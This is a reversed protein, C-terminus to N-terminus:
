ERERERVRERERERESKSEAWTWLGQQHGVQEGSEPVRGGVHTTEDEVCQIADAGFVLRIVRRPQAFLQQVCRAGLRFQRLKRARQATHQRRGKDTHLVSESHVHVSKAIPDPNKL